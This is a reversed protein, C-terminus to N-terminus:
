GRPLLNLLASPSNNAQGLVSLASQQLINFRALQVEEFAVDADQIVSRSAETNLQDTALAELKQTLRSIGAGINERRLTLASVAVQIMSLASLAHSRTSATLGSVGLTAPRVGSITTTLMDAGTQGVQVVFNTSAASLLKVGNFETRGAIDRIEKLFQTLKTNIAAREAIGVTGSAARQLDGKIEILLDQARGQQSEGVQLLNIADQANQQAAMLATIKVDMARGIAFGAADDGSSNIKKGTSLRNITAALKGNVKNLQFLGSLASINTAIRGLSGAM